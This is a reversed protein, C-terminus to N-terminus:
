RSLNQCSENERTRALNGMKHIKPNSFFITKHNCTIMFKTQKARGTPYFPWYKGKTTILVQFGTVNKRKMGSSFYFADKSSGLMDTENQCIRVASGGEPSLGIFADNCSGDTETGNNEELDFHLFHYHLLHTDNTHINWQCAM